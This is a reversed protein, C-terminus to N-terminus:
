DSAEASGSEIRIRPVDVDDDGARLLRQHARGADREHGDRGGRELARRARGRRAVHEVPLARAPRLRLEVGGERGGDRDDAREVDREPQEEILPEFGREVPVGAQTAGAAFARLRHPQLQKGGVLLARGHHRRDARGVADVRGLDDRREVTAEPDRDRVPLPLQFALDEADAVDAPEVDEVDGRSERGDLKGEGVGTSLDFAADRHRARELGPCLVRGNSCREGEARERGQESPLARGILATKTRSSIASAPIRRRRSRPKSTSTSPAESRASVIPPYSAITIRDAVFSVASSISRAPRSFTIPRAPTPMSLTSTAAAVRRPMTTAFAGSDVTTEAASCVTPRSIAIVRLM